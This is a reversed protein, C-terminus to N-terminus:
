LLVTRKGGGEGLRWHVEGLFAGSIKMKDTAKILFLM